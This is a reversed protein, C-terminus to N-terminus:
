RGALWLQPDVAQKYKYVKFELNADNTLPNTYVSGIAQQTSVHAGTQVSVDKLNSYVTFYQGHKLVVTWRGSLPFISVVEGEFVARVPAGPTTQMTIGDNDVMVKELVPHRHIGFTGIVIARAVPWPLRGRNAEFSESLAKAEPTAELVNDPRAPKPAAAAPENGGPAAAADGEKGEEPKDGAPSAAAVSRQRAEEEARARAEAMARRRAEEAARRQAAEIERRIVAAIKLSLQRSEKEKDKIEAMLEKEHGKLEKVMNDKQNKEGEMKERQQTESALVHSRKEKIAALNAIKTKLQQQTEIISNAQHQRYERYQKLYQFRKIADNFSNASLVFNLFDYASRNKYAYVVLRGYQSRLTDLDKQLLHIDRNARNIDGNIFDIEKNITNILKNRLRLKNALIQLQTMTQKRNKQVEDLDRTTQEIEQQLKNRQRELEARPPLEEQAAAFVPLLCLCFAILLRNLPFSVPKEPRYAM